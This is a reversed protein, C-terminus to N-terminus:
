RRGEVLRDFLAALTPLTVDQAYREGILAAAARGLPQYAAPEALVARAQSEWADADTASVLLGTQGPTVFERVPETDAALVVCGSALAVLLSRAVSYPRGPYVHLDSAALVEAVVGPAVTGLCWFRTPDHPPTRELVHAGYDKGYYRVDLGRQVPGVGVVVCLVDSLARMLRNALDMFRDFGRLQDLTRAVFSVVRMEPPVVRGALQRPGTTRPRFRQTDVGDHLVVFDKRYESPFQDRQWRTATWPTAGSELDVLDMANAARRWHRYEVPLEPGLEDALDQGHAHYFYDFYNVVPSNPLHAPAFLTSGLGHSRGLVLDVPRPRRAELVEWCGYAYCLGRELVSTWPVAPKAAVGGVKFSVIELGQGVTEPWGERPEVRHCYFQCRYGRKRVLWDAVAGLRGPFTPEICLLHLPDQAM